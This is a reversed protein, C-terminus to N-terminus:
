VRVRHLGGELSYGAMSRACVITTDPYRASFRIEAASPVHEARIGTCGEPWGEGKPLPMQGGNEMFKDAIRALQSARNGTM